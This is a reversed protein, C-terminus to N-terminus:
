KEGRLRKELLTFFDMKSTKIMEALTEAEKKSKQKKKGGDSPGYVEDLIDGAVANEDEEGQQQKSSFNINLKKDKREADVFNLGFQQQIQNVLKSLDKDSIRRRTGYYRDPLTIAVDKIGGSYIKENIFEKEFEELRRPPYGFGQLVETIYETLDSEEGEAPIEETGAVPEASVEEAPPTEPQVPQEAVPAELAPKMEGTEVAQEQGGQQEQGVSFAGMNGQDQDSQAVMYRKTGAPVIRM